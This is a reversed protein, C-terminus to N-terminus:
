STVTPKSIAGKRELLDWGLFCLSALSLSQNRSMIMRLEVSVEHTRDFQERCPGSRSKSVRHQILLVKFATVQGLIDGHLESTSESTESDKSNAIKTVDRRESKM